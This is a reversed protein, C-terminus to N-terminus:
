QRFYSGPTNPLAVFSSNLVGTSLMQIVNSGDCLAWGDAPSPASVFAVIYGSGNEGPAWTFSDGNWVLQHAYDSVYLLLGTDNAGLGTSASEVDSQTVQYTGAFYIWAGNEVVYRLNRDTEHYTTGSPYDGASINTRAAHSGVLCQPMVPNLKNVLSQFWNLWPKTVNGQKDLFSTRSLSIPTATQLQQIIPTAM